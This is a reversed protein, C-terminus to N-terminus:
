PSTELGSSPLSPKTLSLPPCDSPTLPPAKLPTRKWLTTQAPDLTLTKAVQRLRRSQLIPVVVPRM